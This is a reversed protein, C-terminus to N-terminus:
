CSLNLILRRALSRKKDDGRAAATSSQDAGCV